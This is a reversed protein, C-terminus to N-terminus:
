AALKQEEALRSPWPSVEDLFEYVKALLQKLTHCRHNRTVNDHLHRWLREIRNHDPCYPPLFHLVIRDGFQRALADKVFKSSHISFNDLIVHIRKAEPYVEALKRLLLVFLYGNKRGNSVYHVAGTKPNLAGALYRKENKGPTWVVRQTGRLMWDRGIRPNLDVDVEDEYVAVEDEPLNDLLTQIQHLRRTKRAKQWPCGVAPKPMGWRAGIQNLMRAVTAESVWQRTMDNLALGLLSQTWTTRKFGYAEPTETLVLRLAELLDEDVKPQGNESRRDYLAQEGDRLFRARVKRVASPDYLVSEAIKQTNWGRSYNLVIMARARVGADKTKRILRLLRRKGHRDLELVISEM